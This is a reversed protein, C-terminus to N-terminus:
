WSQDAEGDISLLYGMTLPLPRMNGESLAVSVPGASDDRNVIYVIHEIRSTNHLGAGPWPASLDGAPGGRLPVALPTPMSGSSAAINAMPARTQRTTPQMHTTLIVVGPRM